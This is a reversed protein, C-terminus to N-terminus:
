SKWRGVGVKLQDIQCLQALYQFIGIRLRHLANLAVDGEQIVFQEAEEALAIVLCGDLLVTITQVLNTINQQSSQRGQDPRQLRQCQICVALQQGPEGERFREDRQQRREQRGDAP